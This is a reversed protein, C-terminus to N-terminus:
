SDATFVKMGTQTFNAGFIQKSELRSIPYSVDYKKGNPATNSAAPAPDGNDVYITTDKLATVWIPSGNAKPIADGTGPAWGAVFASTLWEDPVLTYCGM